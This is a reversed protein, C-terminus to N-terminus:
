WTCSVTGTNRHHPPGRKSLLQDYCRTIVGTSGSLVALWILVQGHSCDSREPKWLLLPQPPMRWKMRSRPSYHNVAWASRRSRKTKDCVNRFAETHKLLLLSYLTIDSPLIIGTESHCVSSHHNWASDSLRVLVKNSAYLLRLTWSLNLSNFLM